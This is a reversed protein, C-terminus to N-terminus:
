EASLPWRQWALCLDGAICQEGYVVRGAAADVAYRAPPLATASQEEFTEELWVLGDAKRGLLLHQKPVAIRRLLLADEVGLRYGPMVDRVRRWRFPAERQALERWEPLVPLRVARWETSTGVAGTLRGDQLRLVERGASYWVSTIGPSDPALTDSALFAVAGNVSVRLYAFRPDLKVEAAPAGAPQVVRATLAAIPTAAMEACGGLALAAIVIFLSRILIITM